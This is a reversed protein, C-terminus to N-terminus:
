HLRLFRNGNLVLLDEDAVAGLAGLDNGNGVGLWRVPECLASGGSLPVNQVQSWEYDGSCLVQQGNIRLGDVRLAVYLKEHLWDPLEMTELLIGRQATSTLLTPVGSSSRHVQSSGSPKLKYFSGEVRLRPTIGTTFVMGYANDENRYDICVTNPHYDALWVLESVAVADPEIPDTARLEVEYEGPAIASWDIGVEWVDFGVGTLDWAAQVAGAVPGTWPRTLQLYVTGDAKRGTQLIQYSGSAAGSLRLREAHRLTEPLSAGAAAVLHTLGNQGAQLLVSVPTAAGTHRQVREGILTAVVASSGVTRVVATVSAFDTLVQVVHQDCRQVKQRYRPRVRQGPRQQHCFLTNDPTEFASCTDSTQEQVFRLSNLLPVRFVPMREAPDYVCTGDAQTAAPNYNTAKRDRCGPVPNASGAGTISYEVFAKCGKSDTFTLRYAGLPVQNIVVTQGANYIPALQTSPGDPLVMVEGRFTPADTSVKVSVAGTTAPAVPQTVALESTSIHCFNACSAANEEDEFTVTTGSAIETEDSSGNFFYTRATTGICVPEGLQGAAVYENPPAQEYNRLYTQQAGDEAVTQGTATDLFYSNVHYLEEAYEPDNSNPNPSPGDLYTFRGLLLKTQAM